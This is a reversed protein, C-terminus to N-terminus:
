FRNEADEVKDDNAKGESQDLVAQSYDSAAQLYATYLDETRSLEMYIGNIGKHLQEVQGKVDYQFMQNLAGQISQDM